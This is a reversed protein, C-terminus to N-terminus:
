HTMSYIIANVGIRFADKIEVGRTNPHPIREWGNALGYKSYVLVYRGDIEIGELYPSAFGPREKDILDTYDVSTIKNHIKFLEHGIPIRELKKDPFIKKLERRFSMDFGLRGCCSEALLFGGGELYKALSQIEDKDLGFDFHGCM